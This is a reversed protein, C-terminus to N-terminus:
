EPWLDKYTEFFKITIYRIFVPYTISRYVDNGLEDKLPILSKIIDELANSDRMNSSAYGTSFRECVAGPKPYYACGYKQSIRTGIVTDCYALHSTGMGQNDRLFDTRYVSTAGKFYVGYKLISQDFDNDYFFKTSLSVISSSYFGKIGQTPHYSFAPATVLGIGKDKQIIEEVAELYDPLLFDDAAAYLVHSTKVKKLLSNGNRIVGLNKENKVFKIWNHGKISKEIIECSNDESKDDGIILEFPILTQNILANIARGVVFGHNYNLLVVTIYKSKLTKM